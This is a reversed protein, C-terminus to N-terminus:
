RDQLMLCMKQLMKKNFMSGDLLGNYFYLSRQAIKEHESLGRDEDLEYGETITHIVRQITFGVMDKLTTYKEIRGDMEDLKSLTYSMKGQDRNESAVLKKLNEAHYAAKHCVELLSEIENEMNRCCEYLGDQMARADGEEIAHDGYIKDVMEWASVGPEHFSLNDHPEHRTNEIRAGDWTANVLNEDKLKGFWNLFIMMKRNTRVVPSRIGKVEIPPLARLQSRNFMQPTYTRKVKLFVQEDLYSGPAHAYGGTFALDQGVMVVPKCGLRAAFDYANTSVSGGYRLEGRKGTYEEIWQMMEFAIGTLAFRGRYLRFVSPHVTPDAVVVTRGEGSGEFYRANIVQPDVTICFHPEIGHRRLVHFSTDVAIIVARDVNEKIFPISKELSPGASVVIAPYESFRDYFNQIGPYWAFVGINRAINAAWTREFKALTAINVEKVSIYSKAIRQLNNYYEPDVQHSGRHTLFLTRYSSRAKMAGALADDDPQVLMIIRPDNFIHVIDRAQCAERVIGPYAELILITANKGMKDMIADVHYGFGFGSVVFLDYEDMAIDKLMREAEKQPDFRSHIAIKKGNKEYLPVPFGTKSQEVKIQDQHSTDQVKKCLRPDKQQIAELNKTFVSNQM